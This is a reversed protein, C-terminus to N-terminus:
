INVESLIEDADDIDSKLSELSDVIEEYSEKDSITNKKDLTAKKSALSLLKKEKQSKFSAEVAKEVAQSVEEKDVPKVIYDDVKLNVIDTKPEIGTIMIIQLSPDMDKMREAISDGEKQEDFIRDLVVIDTQDSLKEYAETESCAVTVSFSDLWRSYIQSQLQDDEVVLVEPSESGTFKEGWDAFADLASKMEEGEQTLTYGAGSKSVLDKDELDSLSSSLVKGSIGELQSKLESFKSYDTDLNYLIQSHWKKSVLEISERVLEARDQGTNGSFRNVFSLYFFVNLDNETLM